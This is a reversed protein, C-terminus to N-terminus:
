CRSRRALPPSRGAASCAAAARVLYNEPMKDKLQRDLYDMMLRLM